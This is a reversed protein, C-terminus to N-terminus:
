AVLNTLNTLKSKQTYFGPLVNLEEESSGLHKYTKKNMKTKIEKGKKLKKFKVRRFCVNKEIEILDEFLYKYSNRVQTM